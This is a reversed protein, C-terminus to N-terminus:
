RMGSFKLYVAFIIPTVACFLLTSTCWLSEGVLMMWGDLKNKIFFLIKRFVHM